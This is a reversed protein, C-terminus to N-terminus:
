AIPLRVLHEHVQQMADWHEVIKGDRLRFMDLVLMAPLGPAPRFNSQTVVFDGECVLRVVEVSLRPMTNVWGIVAAVYARPSPAASSVSTPPVAMFRAAADGPRRQHFALDFFERVVLKNLALPSEAVQSAGM